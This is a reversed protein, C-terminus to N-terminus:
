GLWVGRGVVRDVGRGVARRLDAGGESGGGSVEVGRASGQADRDGVVVVGGRVRGALVYCAGLAEGGLEARSERDRLLASPGGALRLGLALSDLALLDCVLVALGPDGSRLAHILRHGGEAARHLLCVVRSRQLRKGPLQVLFQREVLLM